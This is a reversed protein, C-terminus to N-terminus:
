NGVVLQWISVVQEAVVAARHGKAKTAKLKGATLMDFGAFTANKANPLPPNPYPTGGRTSTKAVFSRL